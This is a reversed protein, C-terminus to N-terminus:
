PVSEPCGRLWGTNSSGSNMGYWDEPANAFNRFGVVLKTTDTQRDTQRDKRGCPAVRSRGSPNQNFKINLFKEFIQQSFELKM